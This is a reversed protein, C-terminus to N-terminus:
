RLVQGEERLESGIGVPGRAAVYIIIRYPIKLGPNENPCKIICGELRKPKGADDGERDFGEGKSANAFASVSLQILEIGLIPFKVGIKSNKM